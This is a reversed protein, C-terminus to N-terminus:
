NIKLTSMAKEDSTPSPQAPANAAPPGSPEGEGSVIVVIALVVMLLLAAVVQFKM